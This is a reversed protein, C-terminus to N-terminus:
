HSSTKSKISLFSITVSAFHQSLEGTLISGSTRSPANPEGLWSSWPTMLVRKMQATNLRFLHIWLGNFVMPWNPSFMPSISAMRRKEKQNMCVNFSSRRNKFFSFFFVSILSHMIENSMFIPGLTIM